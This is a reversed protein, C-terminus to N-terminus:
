ENSVVQREIIASTSGLHFVRAANATTLTAIESENRGLLNALHRAIAPINAPENRRARVGAPALYPADTELILRDLPLGSIVERLVASSKRTMLGGIGFMYGREVGFAALDATGEFSHLICVVTRPAQELVALVEAEASRQHIVVPLGLDAAVDIQEEFAQRQRLLPPGDRFLDIGIEGIAVADSHTLMDILSRRTASSWEEASRPHVGLTYRVSPFRDALRLSSVWLNPRYGINVIREVGNQLAREIIQDIEEGFQPDDLHAHTDVFRLSHEVASV